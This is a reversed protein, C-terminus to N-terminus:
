LQPHTITLRNTLWHCIFAVAAESVRLFESSTGVWHVRQYCLVDSVCSSGETHLLLWAAIQSHQWVPPLLLLPYQVVTTFNVTTNGILFELKLPPLHFLQTAQQCKIRSELVINAMIPWCSAGLKHFLKSKVISFHILILDKTWSGLISSELTGFVILMSNATFGRWKPSPHGKPIKMKLMQEMM